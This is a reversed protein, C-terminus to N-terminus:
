AESVLWDVRWSTRRGQAMSKAMFPLMAAAEDKLKWPPNVIIMGTGNLKTDDGEADVLLELRLTKPIALTKLDRHFRDPERWGKIPYWFAFMGTAWRIHAAALAETMRGFEGNEEFPPDILVVGRRELPPLWAKLAAWGDIPSVLARRDREFRRELERSDERHLEALSLRDTPRLLSSALIPSGPYHLGELANYAKLTAIYPQFLTELQPNRQQALFRVVGQAAEGTRRAEDSSLDYLGVGAHTDMYRFPTDKAMLHVLIRALLSHKFVDAFNGAHYAHRYNM